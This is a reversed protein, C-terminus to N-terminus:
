DFHAQVHEVGELGLDHIDLVDHLPVRSSEGEVAPQADLLGQGQPSRLFHFLLGSVPQAERTLVSPEDYGWGVVHRRVHGQRVGERHEFQEPPLLQHQEPGSSDSLM